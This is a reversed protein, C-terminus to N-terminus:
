IIINSILLLLLLINLFLQLKKQQMFAIQNLFEANECKSLNLQPQKMIEFLFHKDQKQIHSSLLDKFTEDGRQWLNDIMLMELYLGADM